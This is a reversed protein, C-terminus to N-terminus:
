DMLTKLVVQVVNLIAAKKEVNRQQEMREQKSHVPDLRRLSRISYGQEHAGCREHQRNPMASNSRRERGSTIVGAIGCLVLVLFSCDVPVLRFRREQVEELSRWRHRGVRNMM